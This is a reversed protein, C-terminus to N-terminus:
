FNLKAGINFVRQIPYGLGNGAMEPDWLKFSSWAFLNRGSAYIRFKSISLRSALSSPLTYGIEAGKLRLFSGDRMFWTNTQSNNNLGQTSSNTLRPWLAYIDRTNKNWHNEAYVDLLQKDGIFPATARPNIWFSEKALGQFFASIDFNKYGMSFGFGYVIEPTRPYGMPVQDLTTIQGDGNVDRYKIDGGTYDGFNQQPSNDVEEQDVFLREAIYGWTQGVPHGIRSKWPEDRYALEEFKVVENTAYTFNGRVQAWLDKNFYHNYDMSLDVGRSKAEGVNAQPTDLLGLSPPIGQRAQLINSRYERYVDASINLRTFMGLDLGINTKEAREWTIRPNSYRSISVGPRWYSSSGSGFSYGRGGNNLNVESLYFFRDSRSGIADNGSYGHSARLKLQNVVGSVPDWFEENSINWALGISPFFGWRHNKNFRESANYGFNFEAYYRKDYNYSMRGAFNVNRFPLSAQLSGVNDPQENRVTFVLLNSLGHKDWFTRDYTLQSQFFFSNSIDKNQPNYTLYETGQNENLQVLRYTGSQQDVGGLGYWYPDYSRNISSFSFREVNIMGSFNLGPTIASLDQNLNFQAVIRSRAYSRYGRVMEAYPNLMYGNGTEYNGFLPHNSYSFNTKVTPYVPAFRVPSSRMVMNYIGSGGNLPGSYDDFIGNIRVGVKTSNTINVDVNSRLSYSKLDINNNFNNRPDVKLVGNDQNFTGSFYYRAVEGGGSVNLNFRQNNTYDKFLMEKWDTSPYLYPDSGPEATKGIKEETYPRVALPNRTSVAQNHMKMYTIPDALGIEKTPMSLSNEMRVEIKADGQRGEKTTILLVGNAARSGYLSSATADKLISFNAIDEPELRALDTTSSEINDILILPSKNYGFTTVGRIFFDANNEGPEGSRQFAIMGAVRGALSTTLNSSPAKELEELDGASFSTVSGVVDEKEMNTGFATVVAGEGQIVDPELEVNIETRGNIPIEQTEFGIFTFILTDRLSTVPLEYNGETDTSTGTSTGKIVVNVGPLVEGSSADTVTGRVVEIQRIDMLGRVIVYKGTAWYNLPVQQFLSDLISRLPKDEVNISLIYDSVLDERFAFKGGTKEELTRLIAGLPQDNLDISVTKELLLQKDAFQELNVNQQGKEALVQSYVPTGIGLLTVCFFIAWKINTRVM